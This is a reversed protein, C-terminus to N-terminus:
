FASIPRKQPSHNGYSIRYNPLVYAAAHMYSTLHLYVDVLEKGDRQVRRQVRDPFLAFTEFRPDGRKRVNVTPKAALGRHHKPGAGQRTRAHAPILAGGSGSLAPWRRAHSARQATPHCQSSRLLARSQPQCQLQQEAEHQAQLCGRGRGPDLGCTLSSRAARAGM